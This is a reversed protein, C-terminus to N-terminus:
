SARMTTFLQKKFRYYYALMMLSRIMMFVSLALWLGQNAFAQTAYWVPLFVVFLSVIICNRMQRSLTAGVFVGDMFFSIFSFLPLAILWPLYEYALDRVEDLHTLANIIEHGVLSFVLVFLLAMVFSWFGTTALSKQFLMTNKEGLARGILAEAAHAFGDLAYAMFSQFNMLVANAALISGGLKEGQVTFFGFVFILCLTRIFLHGNIRLMAALKDWAFLASGSFCISGSPISKIVLGIGLLLGLYEAIVSALAVGESQMGYHVVFLLDLCINCVNITLVILLPSKTNQRGLFWGLVVYQCLTAPASWIRISFYQQALVAISERSDLLFFSFDAICSQFVLILIAICLALFIGRMLIANLESSNDAGFAQASLGSTGMRLFGFGWFIFNFILGALAVAALFDANHLRGMVATDVLGLLPTSINAIIM